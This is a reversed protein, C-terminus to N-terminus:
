PKSTQPRFLFPGSESHAGAAFVAGRPVRRGRFHLGSWIQERRRHRYCRVPHEPSRRKRLTDNGPVFSTKWVRCNWGDVKTRYPLHSIGERRLSLAHVISRGESCSTHAVLLSRGNAPKTKCLTLEITPLVVAADASPAAAFAVLLIAVIAAIWPKRTAGARGDIVRVSM